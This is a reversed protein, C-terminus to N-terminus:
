GLEQLERFAAVDKDDVAVSTAVQRKGEGYFYVDINVKKIPVDGQVLTPPCGESERCSLFHAPECFGQSYCRYNEAYLVQNCISSSLRWLWLVRVCKIEQLRTMLLLSSTQVLPATGSLLLRALHILRNDIRALKIDPEGM